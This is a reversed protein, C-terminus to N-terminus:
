KSSQPRAHAQQRGLEISQAVAGIQDKLNEFGAHMEHKLDDHKDKFDRKLDEAAKYYSDRRMYQEAMQARNELIAEKIIHMNATVAEFGVRSNNDRIEIKQLFEIRLANAETAVAAFKNLYDLKLASTLDSTDKDLKSFKTALKNGSGFIKEALTLAFLAGSIIVAITATDM